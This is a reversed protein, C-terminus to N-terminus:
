RREGGAPATNSAAGGRDGGPFAGPHLLRAVEEIGDVVRPGPQQIADGIVHVRHLRIAPVERWAGDRELREVTSRSDATTLIVEPARAIALEVDFAPWAGTADATISVGGARRLADTLFATRGPVVLPDGWVVFLVRAQTRAEVRRAVTDLRRQLAARLRDGRDPEGLATALDRLSNLVSEVDPTHVAYFPVGLAAAQTAFGPDNGSTSGVLLDPRLARITELNPDLMGGVRTVPATEAPLRCFDTIGALRDGLGLALLADTVNPALSVIREPRLPVRVRRGLGDAVM